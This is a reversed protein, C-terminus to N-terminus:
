SSKGHRNRTILVYHCNKDGRFAQINLGLRKEHKEGIFFSRINKVALEFEEETGGIIEIGFADTNSVIDEITVGEEKPHEEQGMKIFYEVGATLAPTRKAERLDGSPLM